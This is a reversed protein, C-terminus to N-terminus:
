DPALSAKRSLSRLSTADVHDGMSGLALAAVRHALAMRVQHSNGDLLGSLYGAAFADGAGVPEVVEVRASPVFISDAEGAPFVTAGVEADKVVLENGDGLLARVSAADTTGWLAQAEDRGVFVIDARHTLELLVPGAEDASWLGPRFNVDFSRLVGAAGARDLLVETTHAASASLAPTIGSVHVLRAADIPATALDSPTLRSAASNRRYYYVKSATPGPDKFFVGTPATQDRVVHRVDVGAGTLSGLVRDGHPDAGLRSLWSTRHGLDNLYLAVTSEAGAVHAALCGTTALSEGLEPVLLVMCEGM